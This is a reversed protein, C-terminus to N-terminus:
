WGVSLLGRGPVAVRLSCGTTGWYIKSGDPWILTHLLHRLALRYDEGPVQALLDGPGEFARKQGVYHSPAKASPEALLDRVDPPVALYAAHVGDEYVAKLAPAIGPPVLGERQLQWTIRNAPRTFGRLTRDAEYEALEYVLARPLRGDPQQAAARMVQAQVPREHDLRDLLETLGATTWM